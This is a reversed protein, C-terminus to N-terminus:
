QVDETQEKPVYDNLAYWTMSKYIGIAVGIAMLLLEFGKFYLFLKNGFFAGGSWAIVCFIFGVFLTLAGYILSIYERHKKPTLRFPVYVM